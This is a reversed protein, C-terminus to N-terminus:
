HFRRILTERLHALRFGKERSVNQNEEAYLFANDSQDVAKQVTLQFSNVFAPTDTIFPEDREQRVSKEVELWKHALKLTHELRLKRDPYVANQKLRLEFFLSPIIKDDPVIVGSAKGTKNEEKSKVLMGIRHNIPKDFDFESQHRRFGPIIRHYWAPTRIIKNPDSPPGEKSFFSRFRFFGSSTTEKKKQKVEPVEKVDAVEEVISEKKGFLEKKTILGMKLMLRQERTPKPYHDQHQYCNNTQEIVGINFLYQDETSPITPKYATNTQELAGIQFLYDGGDSELIPVACEDSAETFWSIFLADVGDVEPARDRRRGKKRWELSPPNSSDFASNTQEIAGIRLLYDEDRPKRSAYANNTQGQRQIKGLFNEDEEFIVPMIEVDTNTSASCMKVKGINRGRNGGNSGGGNQQSSKQQNNGSSVTNVQAPKQNSGSASAKAQATNQQSQDSAGAAAQGKKQQDKGSTNPMVQAPKSQSVGSAAQQAQVQQKSSTNSTGTSVQRKPEQSQDSATAGAKSQQGQARGPAATEAKNKKKKQANLVNKLPKGQAVEDRVQQISSDVKVDLFSLDQSSRSNSRNHHTKKNHKKNKQQKYSATSSTFSWNSERDDDVYPTQPPVVGSNSASSHSTAGTETKTAPGIGPNKQSMQRYRSLFVELLAGTTIRRKFWEGKGEEPKSGM